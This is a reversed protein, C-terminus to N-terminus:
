VNPQSRVYNPVALQHPIENPDILLLSQTFKFITGVPLNNISSRPTFYIGTGDFRLPLSVLDGGPTEIWLTTITLETKYFALPPYQAVTIIYYTVGNGLSVLSLLAGTGWFEYEFGVHLISVGLGLLSPHLSSINEIESIYIFREIRNIESLLFSLEQEILSIDLGFILIVAKPTFFTLEIASDATNFLAITAKGGNNTIEDESIDVLSYGPTSSVKVHNATTSLDSWTEAAANYDRKKLSYSQGNSAFGTMGAVYWLIVYIGPRVFDISGDEQYQIDEPPTMSDTESSKRITDFQVISNSPIATEIDNRELQLYYM